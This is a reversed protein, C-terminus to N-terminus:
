GERPPAVCSELKAAIMAWPIQARVLAALERQATKRAARAAGRARAVARAAANVAYAADAADADTAAYAAYAAAYAAAAYAAAADAAYAAAYAARAADRAAKHNDKSPDDAWRESAEIALRLRDEGTPVYKLATRACDCAARALTPRDIDLRAALWLMWDARECIVWATEPDPQSTLWAAADSCPQLDRIRDTLATM